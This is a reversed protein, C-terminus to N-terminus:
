SAAEPDRSHRGRGLRFGGSPCFNVPDVVSQTLYLGSLADLSAPCLLVSLPGTVSSVLKLPDLTHLNDPHLRLAAVTVAEAETAASVSTGAVSCVDGGDNWGQLSIADEEATLPQELLAQTPRAGDPPM